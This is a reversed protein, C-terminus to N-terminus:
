HKLIESFFTFFRFIGPKKTKKRLIFVQKKRTKEEDRRKKLGIEKKKV